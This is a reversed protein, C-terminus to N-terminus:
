NEISQGKLLETVCKKLSKEWSTLRVGFDHSVKASLLRSNLPRRAVTKYDQTKIPNLKKIQMKLGLEECCEHIRIAFEYWSCFKESSLHYLGPQSPKEMITWTAQALDEAYNPAGIQDSVVGLEEREKFLRIMTKVFNQGFESYIWSTRFVYSTGFALVKKEGSLKSSGYVNLPETSDSETWPIESEGNFVYDTSYHFFVVKHGFCWKAIQSPTESNIQFCLDKEVEAQDVKTYAVTNIVHTPNITELTEIIQEPKELPAERHSLYIVDWNKNQTKALSRALQGSEGLVVVKM